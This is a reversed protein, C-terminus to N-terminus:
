FKGFVGILGYITLVSLFGFGLNSTNKKPEESNALITTIGNHIFFALSFNGTVSTIDNFNEPFLYRFVFTNLILLFM